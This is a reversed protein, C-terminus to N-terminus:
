DGRLSREMAYCQDWVMADFAALRKSWRPSLDNVCQVMVRDTYNDFFAWPNAQDRPDMGQGPNVSALAHEAANKLDRIFEAQVDVDAKTGTRAVHGSVLTDYPIHRLEEVQAFYGPIDEAISLRRWPMWGPCIIDVVMLVKPAPAQIFINGPKHANGHYPLVLVQSGARLTYRDRFTVGPVPRRPDNARVLLRRTEEHAVIIPGGGLIKAGGIHDLHSHSYVLHTIPKDTVEAIAQHLRAAYSPPADIVVVGKEWTMFM